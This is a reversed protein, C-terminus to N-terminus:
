RERIASALAMSASICSVARLGSGALNMVRNDQVQGTAEFSNSTLGWLMVGHAGPAGALLPGTVTV